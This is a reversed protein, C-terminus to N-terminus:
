KKHRKHPPEPLARSSGHQRHDLAATNLPMFCASAIHFYMTFFNSDTETLGFSPRSQLYYTLTYSDAEAWGGWDTEAHLELIAQAVIDFGLDLQVHHKEACVDAQYCLPVSTTSCCTAGWEDTDTKDFDFASCEASNEMADISYDASDGAGFRAKADITATLNVNLTAAAHAKTGEGLSSWLGIDISPMVRVYTQATIELEISYGKLDEDGPDTPEDPDAFDNTQYYDYSMGTTQIAHVGFEGQQVMERKFKFTLDATFKVHVELAVGYRMGLEVGIGALTTGVCLNPKCEKPIDIVDSKTKSWEAHLVATFDVKGVFKLSGEIWAEAFPCYNSTRIVIHTDGDVDISCGSCEVKYSVKGDGGDFTYEDEQVFDLDVDFKLDMDKADMIRFAGWKQAFDFYYCGGTYYMSVTFEPYSFGDSYCNNASLTEISPLRYFVNESAPSFADTTWVGNQLTELVMCEDDLLPDSEFLWMKAVKNSGQNGHYQWTFQYKGGPILGYESGKKPACSLQDPTSVVASPDYIENGTCIASGAFYMNADTVDDSWFGCSGDEKTVGNKGRRRISKESKDGKKSPHYHALAQDDGISSQQNVRWDDPSALAKVKAEANAKRIKTAKADAIVQGARAFPHVIDLNSQKASVVRKNRSVELREPKGRFYEVTLDKFMEYFHAPQAVFSLTTAGKDDKAKHPPTIVRNSLKEYLGNPLKCYVDKAHVIHGQKLSYAKAKHKSMTLHYTINGDRHLASNCATVDEPELLNVHPGRKADYEYYVLQNDHTM